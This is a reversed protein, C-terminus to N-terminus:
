EASNITSVGILELCEIPNVDILGGPQDAVCMTSEDVAVKVVAFSTIAFASLVAGRLLDEKNRKIKELM